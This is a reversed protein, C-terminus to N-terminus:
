TLDRSDLRDQEARAFRKAEQEATAQEVLDPRLRRFYLFKSLRGDQYRVEFCGCDPIVEHNILRIKM